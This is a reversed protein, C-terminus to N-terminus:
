MCDVFVSVGAHTHQIRTMWHYSLIELERFPRGLQALSSMLEVVVPSALAGTIHSKTSPGALAAVAEKMNEMPPRVGVCTAENRVSTQHLAYDVDISLKLGRLDLVLRDDKSEKKSHKAENRQLFEYVDM